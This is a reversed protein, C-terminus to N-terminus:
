WNGDLLLSEVPGPVDSGQLGRKGDYANSQLAARQFSQPIELLRDGSTRLRRQLASAVQNEGTACSVCLVVDDDSKTREQEQEQEQEERRGDCRQPQLPRWSVGLCVGHFLTPSGLIIEGVTAHSLIEVDGGTPPRPISISITFIKTYGQEQQEETRRGHNKHILPATPVVVSSSHLPAQTM